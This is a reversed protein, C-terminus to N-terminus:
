PGLAFAVLAVGGCGQALGEAVRGVAAALLLFAVGTTLVHVAWVRLDGSSVWRDPPRLRVAEVFPVSLVSMGPAKDSYVRGDYHSWDVSDGICPSITLRGDALAQSLCLRSADPDSAHNVPSLAVFAVLALLLLEHAPQRLPLRSPRALLGGLGM